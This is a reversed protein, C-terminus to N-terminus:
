SRESRKSTTLSLLVQIIIFGLIVVHIYYGASLGGIPLRRYNSIFSVDDAIVLLAADYGAFGQAAFFYLQDQWVALDDGVKAAATHARDEQGSLFAEVAQDRDFHETLGYRGIRLKHLFELALGYGQGGQIM